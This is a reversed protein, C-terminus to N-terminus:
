IVIMGYEGVRNKVGKGFFLVAMYVRGVVLWCVFCLTEIVARYGDGLVSDLGFVCVDRRCM